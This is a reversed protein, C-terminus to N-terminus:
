GIPAEAGPTQRRYRLEATGIVIRDGFGILTRSELLEVGNVHVTARAKGRILLARGGTQTSLLLHVPDIGRGQIRWGAEPASGVTLVGPGLARVEGDFEIYPM